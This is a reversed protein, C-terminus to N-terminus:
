VGLEKAIKLLVGTIRKELDSDGKEAAAMVKMQDNLAGLEGLYKDVEIKAGAAQAEAMAKAAMGQLKLIEFQTKQVDLQFEKEKIDVERAKLQLEFPPQSLAEDPLILKQPDEINMADLWRRRIEQDNFGQGMAERLAQAKFAKGLDNVDEPNSVPVVDIGAVNYDYQTIAFEDDMVRFYQEGSLYISNLRFLKKFEGKLGRHVRKYVSSFVKMGQEILAATTAYPVNAGPSQGTMVEAVSSMKEGSDIMLGLVQFLVASPEHVPLPVIAKRLDDGRMNVPKWEGLRFSVEGAGKMSKVASKDIFGANSNYLTGSDIIQNLMTNITENVPRLMNGLGMGRSGGDPSPFFVTQTYYHVPDIKVVRKGDLRVGGLDFRVGIRMVKRSSRHVTVIYPEKYGDDDLDLLRHQELFVVPSDDDDSSTEKEDDSDANEDLPLDIDAYYGSRKREEVENPYLLIKETIRPASEVSRAWYNVTIKDSGVLCSVNRGNVADWYTKKWMEGVVGLYVLGRDVGEEWEPMEELLQYSMHKGVRAGIASKAGDVWQGSDPNMLRDQGVVKCKVVDAGKIINPYARASFQVVATNITPFKVNAANAFPVNKQEFIQLALGIAPETREWWEECSAVDLDYDDVVRQGIEALVEDDLQDVLNLEYAREGYLVEPKLKKM